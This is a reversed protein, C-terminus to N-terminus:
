STALRRLDRAITQAGDGERALLRARGAADFIFIASSHDVAYYGNRDPPEHHYAVRYRKTLATLASDDGRLGVFQPGFFGVYRKLVASTDRQPDVTVFLVRMQAAQPGLRRMVASLTTLTTPCADPCNTYGFYLLVVKGRYDRATVPKDDHDTLEFQLRPLLGAVSQLAFPPERTGCAALGLTLLALALAGRRIPAVRRLCLGEGATAASVRARGELTRIM